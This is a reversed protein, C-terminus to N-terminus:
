GDLPGFEPGPNLFENLALNGLKQLAVGPLEWHVKVCLLTSARGGGPQGEVLPGIHPLSPSLLAQGAEGPTGKVPHHSPSCLSLTFVCPMWEGGEGLSPAPEGGPLPVCVM